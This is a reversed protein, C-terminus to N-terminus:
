LLKIMDLWCDGGNPNPQANVEFTGITLTFVLALSSVVATVKRVIKM